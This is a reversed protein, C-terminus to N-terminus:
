GDVWGVMPAVSPRMASRVETSSDAQAAAFRPAPRCGAGRRAPAPVGPRRRRALERDQQVVMEDALERNVRAAVDFRPPAKEHEDSPRRVVDPVFPADRLEPTPHLSAMDLQALDVVGLHQPLAVGRAARAPGVDDRMAQAALAPHGVFLASAEEHFGGAAELRELIQDSREVCGGDAGPLSSCARAAASTLSRSRTAIATVSVLGSCISGSISLRAVASVWNDGSM